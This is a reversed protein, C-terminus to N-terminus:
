GVLLKAVPVSLLLLAASLIISVILYIGCLKLPDSKNGQCAHVGLMEAIWESNRWGVLCVFLYVPCLLVEYILPLYHIMEWGPTSLETFLHDLIWESHVSAAVGNVVIDGGRALPNFLGKKTLTKKVTVRSLEVPQSIHGLEVADLDEQESPCRTWKVDSTLIVDGVSVDAAYRYRSRAHFLCLLTAHSQIIEKDLQEGDMSGSRSIPDLLESAPLVRLYHTPSLEITNNETQLSIFSSVMDPDRHGFLYVPTFELTRTSTSLTQVEDGYNLHCM